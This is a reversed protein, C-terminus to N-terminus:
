PMAPAVSGLPYNIQRKYNFAYRYSQNTNYYMKMVRHAQAVYEVPLAKVLMDYIRRLPPHEPTSKWSYFYNSYAIDFLSVKMLREDGYITRWYIPYKDRGDVDFFVLDIKNDTSITAGISLLYETMDVRGNCVSNELATLGEYV